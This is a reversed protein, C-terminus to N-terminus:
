GVLSCVPDVHFVGYGQLCQPWTPTKIQYMAVLASTYGANFEVAVRSGNDTRVDPFSDTGTTPGELLAGTLKHPNNQVALLIVTLQTLVRPFRRGRFLQEQLIRLEYPCLVSLPSLPRLKGPLCVKPNYLGTIANCVAPLNPCSSARDQAHTYGSGGKPTFGVVFSTVVDGLLYRMQGQAWCIYRQSKAATEAKAAIKSGYILGM